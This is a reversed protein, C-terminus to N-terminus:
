PLFLCSDGYSLFRFNNNLAFNYVKKWDDGIFAAILLLLTSKPQHFNTVIGNTIRFKYGPMIILQTIGSLVDINKESMFKLVAKLSEETSIGTNYKKQYPEWQKINFEEANDVIIKVGFWYLSEITRVTTTGVAILKEYDKNLISEITNKNLIIHETHMEHDIIKETSVPKFTGAGVHLIVTDTKIGKDKIESLEKDSFHLGATPAAVSGNHRAYVTQYREKDSKEAERNIYPPLPVYGAIELINFFNLDAPEWRFEVLSSNGQKEIRKATLIHQESNYIITKKLINDKWKKSNGIFCKWVCNSKQQFALQIEQTPSVPELCFIEIRAGTDKKFAMRAQIVKTNNFLMLSDAPLYHSINYFNDQIINNDKLIVLKSKDREKAPYQAIKELPLNYDFDKISIKKYDIM